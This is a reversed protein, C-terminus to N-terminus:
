CNQLTAFISYAGKIQQLNSHALLVLNRFCRGDHLAPTRPFVSVWLQNSGCVRVM